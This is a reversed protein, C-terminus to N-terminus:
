SSPRSRSSRVSPSRADALTQRHTCPMQGYNLIVGMKDIRNTFNSHYLSVGQKSQGCSFLNLGCATGVGTVTHSITPSVTPSITPNVTPSTTPPITLSITPSVTPSATHSVTPSITPSTTCLLSPQFFSLFFASSQGAQATGTGGYSRRGLQRNGTAVTDDLARTRSAQGHSCAERAGLIGGGDRTGRMDGGMQRGDTEWRDGMEGMERARGRARARAAGPRCRNQSLSLSFHPPDSACAERIACACRPRRENRVDSVKACM